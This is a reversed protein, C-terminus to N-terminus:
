MHNAQSWQQLESIYADMCSSQNRSLLDTLTTDDVYKHSPGSAVSFILMSRFRLVVTLICSPKGNEMSSMLRCISSLFKTARMLSIAWFYLPIPRMHLSRCSYLMIIRYRSLTTTNLWKWLGHTACFIVDVFEHTCFRCQIAPDDDEHRIVLGTSLSRTLHRQFWIM